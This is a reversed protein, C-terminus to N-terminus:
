SRGRFPTTNFLVTVTGAGQNGVVLDIRGDADFDGAALTRAGAGTFVGDARVGENPGFHGQGDGSFIMITQATYNAVVLDLKGDGNVDVNSIDRPSSLLSGSALTRSTFTTTFAGPAAHAGYAITVSNGTTNATAFDLVGDENFDGITVNRPGSGTAIKTSFPFHGTGDGFLVIAYAKADNTAVLDLIGDKNFDGAAIGHVGTSLPIRVRDPFVFGGDGLWVEVCGCGYFAIAIDAHGDRNFDGSAIERPDAPADYPIITTFENSNFDWGIVTVKNSDASTVVIDPHGDALLDVSTIGFPGAPIANWQQHLTLSGDEGGFYISLGNASYNASAFDPHGDGNYDAVTVGRPNGGVSIRAQRTFQPPTTDFSATLVASASLVVTVVLVLRNM